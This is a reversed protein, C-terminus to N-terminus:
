YNNSLSCNSFSGNHLKLYLSSGAFSNPLLSLSLCILILRVNVKELDSGDTKTHIYTHVQRLAYSPPFSRSEKEPSEYSDDREREM